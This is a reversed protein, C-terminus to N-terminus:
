LPAARKKQLERLWFGGLFFGLIVLTAVGGLKMVNAAFLTYGNANPDFHYCYLILKDITSGVKGESAELLGLRLNIEPFEIGYLYRSVKGDPTLVVLVAPHAYEEREEVYYYKFGVADALARITSDRGVFFHWSADLGLRDIEGIQAKKKTKALQPTESPDISVTLIRYDAGPELSLSQIAKSLGNLVLTCLMPCNYYALVLVVPVDGNFYEGIQKTEGNEDTFELDLPIYEGLHEDVDIDQLENIDDRVIQGYGPFYYFFVIILPLIIRIISRM